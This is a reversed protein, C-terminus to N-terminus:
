KFILRLRGMQQLQGVLAICLLLISLTIYMIVYSTSIGLFDVYPLHNVPGLYWLLMYVVEFLKRTRSWLGFALALTPIFVIGSLWSLLLSIDEILIFQIIVGSSIIFGVIIGSIWTAFFKYFPSCSSMIIQDTGYYTERTMMQSWIAIPWIIIIPLWGRAIDVPCILGFAILGIAIVYWWITFGKLMISLEAKVLRLMSIGKTRTISTLTFLNNSHESMAILKNEQGLETIKKKGKSSMHFRRFVLSTLFILLLTIELWVFRTILIESNWNVGDWQFTQMQGEIPYYGFSRNEEGRSLFGFQSAADHLMDSSIIHLGFVDWYNNPQEMAMIGLFVWLFFFIVNGVVGKLGPFVDFFTTLASLLLLSPLVIYLIPYVYGGLQFSFDEGRIFQMIIFAIIFVMEIVVLVFFNSITKGFIYQFRSIPSAAILQGIGLRWDDSVQSRLMYFGFLWLLLSSIMVGMGGLWNSNYIGRVGGLEFVEYGSSVAPVCAYGLFITLGIVILFSYSRMQRIVNNKIFYLLNYVNNM